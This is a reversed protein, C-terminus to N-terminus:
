IAGTCIMECAELKPFCEEFILKVGYTECIVVYAGCTFPFVVDLCCFVVLMGHVVARRYLSDNMGYFSGEEM